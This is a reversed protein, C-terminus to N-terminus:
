ACLIDSPSINVLQVQIAPTAALASVQGSRYPEPCTCPTSNSPSSAIPNSRSASCRSTDLDATPKLSSPGIVRQPTQGPLLQAFLQLLKIPGSLWEL